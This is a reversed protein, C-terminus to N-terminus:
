RRIEFTQEGAQPAVKAGTESTILRGMTKRLDELFAEVAAGAGQVEVLVSGDVENRVWGTVAHGRAIGRATARFGV